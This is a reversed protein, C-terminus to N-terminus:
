ARLRSITAYHGSAVTIRTAPVGQASTLLGWHPRARLIVLRYGLNASPDTTAEGRAKCARDQFICQNGDGLGRVSRNSGASGVGQRQNRPSGLGARHGGRPGGDSSADECAKACRAISTGQWSQCLCRWGIGRHGTRGRSLGFQAVYTAGTTEREHRKDCYAKVL